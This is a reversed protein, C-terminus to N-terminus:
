RTVKKPNVRVLSGYRFWEGETASIIAPPRLWRSPLHVIVHTIDLLSPHELLDGGAGWEPHPARRDRRRDPPLRRLRQLHPPARLRSALRDGALRSGLSALTGVLFPGQWGPFTASSCTGWERSCSPASRRDAAPAPVLLAGRQRPRAQPLPGATITIGSRSVGPMLALAQAFGLAVAHRLGLDGM